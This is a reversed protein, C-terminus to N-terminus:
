VTKNSTPSLAGSASLMLLLSQALAVTHVKGLYASTAYKLGLLPM